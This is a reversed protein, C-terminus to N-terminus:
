FSDIYFSHIRTCSHGMTHRSTTGDSRVVLALARYWQNLCDQTSCRRLSELKAIEINSVGEKVLIPKLAKFTVDNPPTSSALMKQFIKVAEEMKGGSVYMQIVSNYSLAQTLLGLAQM